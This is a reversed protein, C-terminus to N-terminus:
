FISKYLLWLADSGKMTEDLCQEKLVRAVPDKTDFESCFGHSNAYRYNELGILAALIRVVLAIVVVTLIINKWSGM